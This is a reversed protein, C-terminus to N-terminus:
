QILLLKLGYGESIMQVRTFRFARAVHPQFRFQMVGQGLNEAIVEQRPLGLMMRNITRALEPRQSQFFTTFDTDTMGREAYAMKTRDSILQDWLLQYEENQLCTLTNALVHEPLLARITVRGGETEERIRFQESSSNARRHLETEDETGYVNVIITGDELVERDPLSSRSAQRHFEPRKIYEIRYPECGASVSCAVVAGLSLVVRQIRNRPIM